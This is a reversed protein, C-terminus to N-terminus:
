RRETQGARRTSTLEAQQWGTTRDGAHAGPPTAAPRTGPVPELGPETETETEPATRGARKARRRAAVRMGVDVLVGTAMGMAIGALMGLLPNGHLWHGALLGVTVSYAAWSLGALVSLGFFRRRPFGSAGAVLNVAVRGVPIYRATLLLVAARRDLGARAWGVAAQMRPRRMWGFRTVGVGRGIAFTVNDGVIAGVAACAVILAINPQGLTISAAAAAIVVSESPVPPFFADVFVVVAVVLYIWPSSVTQAILENVADM